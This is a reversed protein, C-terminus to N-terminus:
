FVRSFDSKPCSHYESLLKDADQDRMTKGIKNGFSISDEALDLSTQVGNRLDGPLYITESDLKTTKPLVVVVDGYIVSGPDGRFVFIDGAAGKMADRNSVIKPAVIKRSNLIEELNSFTTTHTIPMNEVYDTKIKVSMDQVIKELMSIDISTQESVSSLHENLLAKRNKLSEDSSIKHYKQWMAEDFTAPNQARLRLLEGNEVQIDIYKNSKTLKTDIMQSMSVINEESPAVRPASVFTNYDVRYQGNKGLYFVTEVGNESEIVVGFNGNVIRKALKPDNLDVLNDGYKLILNEENNKLVSVGVSEFSLFAVADPQVLGEEIDKIGEMFSSEGKMAKEYINVYGLPPTYGSEGPNRNIFDVIKNFESESVELGKINFLNEIDDADFESKSKGVEQIISKVNEPTEALREIESPNNKHLKKLIESQSQVNLPIMDSPPGGYIKETPTSGSWSNLSKISEIENVCTKPLGEFSNIDYVDGIGKEKLYKKVFEIRNEPVYVILKDPKITGPIAVEGSIGSIVNKTEGTYRIGFLVPFPHEIMEKDVDSLKKWGEIRRKEVEIFQNYYSEKTHGMEGLGTIRVGKDDINKTYRKIKERGIEPKWGGMNFSELSYGSAKTVLRTPVVSISDLNIGQPSIFGVGYEGAFSVVGEEALKGSPILGPNEPNFIGSLSKSSSGHFYDPPEIEVGAYIVRGDPMEWRGGTGVFNVGELNKLEDVFSDFHNRKSFVFGQVIQKNTEDIFSKTTSKKLINDLKTLKNKPIDLIGGGGLLLETYFGAGPVFTEVGFGAMTEGIEAGTFSSIGALKPHKEFFRTAGIGQKFKSASRIGRQIGGSLSSIGKGVVGFREAGAGFRLAAGGVAGVGRAVPGATLITGANFLNVEDMLFKQVGSEQLEKADVYPSGTDLNLLLLEDSHKEPNSLALVVKKVDSNLYNDLDETSLSFEKLIKNQIGPSASMFSQLGYGEGIASKLANVVGSQKSLKEMRTNYYEEYETGQLAIDLIRPTRIWVNIQEELFGEPLEGEIGTKQTLSELLIDGEAFLKSSVSNLFNIQLNTNFEKLREDKPNLSFAAASERLVGATNPDQKNLNIMALGFHAKSKAVNLEELRKPNTTRLEQVHENSIKYNVLNEYELKAEELNGTQIQLAGINLTVSAFLEPNERVSKYEDIAKGYFKEQLKYEDSLEIFNGVTLETKRTDAVNQLVTLLGRKSNINKIININEESPAQNRYDRTPYDEPVITQDLSIYEKGDPSWGTITEKGNVLETKYHLPTVGERTEPLIFHGHTKTSSEYSISGGKIQYLEALNLKAYDATGKDRETSLFDELYKIADDYEGQFKLIELDPQMIAFELNDRQELLESVDEGLKIKSEIQLNILDIEIKAINQEKRIRGLHNITEEYEELPYTRINQDINQNNTILNLQGNKRLDGYIMNSNLGEDAKQYTFSFSSAEKKSVLEDRYLKAKGEEFFIFNKGNDIVAGGYKVDFHDLTTDYSTYVESNLGRYTLGKNGNHIQVVGKALLKNEWEIVSIANIQEDIIDKEYFYINFKESSSYHLNTDDDKYHSGSGLHMEVFNNEDWIAFFETASVEQNKYNFNHIKDANIRKSRPDYIIESGEANTFSFTEEEYTFSYKTPATSTFDAFEVEDNANLTISAEKINNLVTGGADVNGSGELMISTQGTTSYEKFSITAGKELSNLKFSKIELVADPKANKNILTFESSGEVAEFGRPIKAFFNGDSDKIITNGDENIEVNGKEQGEPAEPNERFAEEIYPKFKQINNVIEREEPDLEKYVEGMIKSKVAGGPNMGISLVKGLETNLSSVADLVGGTVACQPCMAFSISRGIVPNQSSIYSLGMDKGFGFAATGLAANTAGSLFIICLIISTITTKKM